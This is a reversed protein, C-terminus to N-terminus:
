DLKRKNKREKWRLIREKRGDTKKIRENNWM